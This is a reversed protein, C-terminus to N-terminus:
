DKERYVFDRTVKVCCKLCESWVGLGTGRENLISDEDALDSDSLDRESVGDIRNKERKSAMESKIGQACEILWRTVQDEDRNVSGGTTQTRLRDAEAESKTLGKETPGRLYQSGLKSLCSCMAQHKMACNDYSFAARLRMDGVGLM